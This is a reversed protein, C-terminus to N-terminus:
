VGSNSGTSGSGTWSYSNSGDTGSVNLAQRFLGAGPQLWLGVGVQGDVCGAPRKVCGGVDGSDEGERGEGSATQRGM